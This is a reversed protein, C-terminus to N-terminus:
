PGAVVRRGAWAVQSAGVVLLHDCRLLCWFEGADVKGDAAGFGLHDLPSLLVSFFRFVVALSVHITGLLTPNTCLRIGSAVCGCGSM